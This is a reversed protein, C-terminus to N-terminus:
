AEGEADHMAFSYPPWPGSCECRLGAVAALTSSVEAEFHEIDDRAVLFAGKLVEVEDATDAVAGAACLRGAAAASTLREFIEQALTTVGRATAAELEDRLQRELFYARGPRATLCEQRLRRIGANEAFIRAGLAARTAYIHLAWEDRGELRQLQVLFSECARRLASIIDGTDTYVMGLKAPLIPQQAHIMEIVRNHSRVMTELESTCRLREQMAATTFDALPVPRVVAALESLELLELQNSESWVGLQQEANVKALLQLLGARLTIGYLYWGCAGVGAHMTREAATPMTM